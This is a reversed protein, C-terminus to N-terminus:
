NAGRALFVAPFTRILLRTDEWLSWNTVYLYDLKVMEEFPISARGLVQWPGTLGPTLDLRREGWGNIQEQLQPTMPRPGVLSMDGKLVNWLQPLEDISTRRLFRGLRTIRPDDELLLWSPDQSLARLEEVLDDANQVMTRFKHLRFCRGGRGVRVQSFFVPGPSDLRIALAAIAMFPLSLLVIPAAIAIDMTRKMARSSRGLAPPNLGLVTLGEIDDIEVSPGIADVHNPVINFRVDLESTERILDTVAQEDIAPEVVIVRDVGHEECVARLARVPGLYPIEGGLGNSRHEVADVYGVLELAYEQHSRVKRVLLRGMDGGGALLVREPDESLKVLSRAAARLLLVSVFATGAFLVSEALTLHEGVVGRVFLWLALAGVVIAHFVRPVDDVTTYSIRKSDRDYLGYIKFLVIWAPLTLLGVALKDYENHGRDVSLMGITLATAIAVSDATALARRLVWALRGRPHERRHGSAAPVVAQRDPAAQAGPSTLTRNSDRQATQPEKRSPGTEFHMAM